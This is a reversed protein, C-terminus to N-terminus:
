LSIVQKPLYLVIPLDDLFRVAKCADLALLSRQLFTQNREARANRESLGLLDGQRQWGESGREDELKKQAASLARACEQTFNSCQAQAFQVCKM